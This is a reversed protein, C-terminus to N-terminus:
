VDVDPTPPPPSKGTVQTVMWKMYHVQARSSDALSNLAKAVGIMGFGHADPNQHMKLLKASSNRTDRIMMYIRFAFGLTPVLAIGMVWLATQPTM